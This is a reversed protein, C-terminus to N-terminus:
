ACTSPKNESKDIEFRDITTQFTNANENLITLLRFHYSLVFKNIAYKHIVNISVETDTKYAEISRPLFM